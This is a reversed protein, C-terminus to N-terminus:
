LDDNIISQSLDLGNNPNIPTIMLKIAIMDAIPESRSSLIGNASITIMIGNRLRLLNNRSM